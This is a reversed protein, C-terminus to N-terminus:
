QTELETVVNVSGINIATNFVTKVNSIYIGDIFVDDLNMPTPDRFGSAAIITVYCDLDELQSRDLCGDDSINTEQDAAVLIAGPPLVFQEGAALTESTFKETCPSAPPTPPAAM